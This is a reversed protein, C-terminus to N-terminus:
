NIWLIVVLRERRCLGFKAIKKCVAKNIKDDFLPIGFCVDLLTWDKENGHCSINGSHMPSQVPLSLSHKTVQSTTENSEMEQTDIIDQEADTREKPITETMTDAGRHPPHGNPIRTRPKGSNLLTIYGCMHRLDLTTTLSHVAPHCEMSEM